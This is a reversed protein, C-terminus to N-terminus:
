HDYYAIYIRTGVVTGVCSGDDFDAKPDDSAEIKALIQGVVRDNVYTPRRGSTQFEAVASAVTYTHKGSCGCCCKGDRGAYVHKVRNRDVKM